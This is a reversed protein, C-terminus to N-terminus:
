SGAQSTLAEVTTVLARGTFLRPLTAVGALPEPHLRVVPLGPAQAQLRAVAAEVADREGGIVAACAVSVGDAEDPVQVSVTFGAGQLAQRAHHVLVEDPDIVVVTGRDAEVALPLRVQAATGQGPVSSLRLSGGAAEVLTVVTALGLGRGERRPRTTFFPETARSLCDADMGEGDDAVVIEVSGVSPDPRVSLRVRGGDAVADRANLVLQRLVIELKGSDVRVLATGIPAVDPEFTITGGLVEALSPALQDVEVALDLVEQSGPASMVFASMLRSLTGARGAAEAVVQVDERVQAAQDGAADAAEEIFVGYNVITSLANNLDHALGGLLKGVFTRHQERLLACAAATREARAEDLEGARAEVSPDVARM